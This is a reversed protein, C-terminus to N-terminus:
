LNNSCENTGASESSTARSAWLLMGIGTLLVADAINFINTGVPGYGIYLFDVVHNLRIRDIQNGLGGALILTYASIEYRGLQRSLMYLGLGLLLLCPLLVLVFWRVQENWNAGLSGWAGRNEAYTLKLVGLYLRPEHGALHQVAWYKSLQDIGFVACFLPLAWLLRQQLTSSEM